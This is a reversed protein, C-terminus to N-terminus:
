SKAERKIARELTQDLAAKVKAYEEQSIRGQKHEVELQFLEEKLAEFLMGSRGVLPKTTVPSDASPFSGSTPVAVHMDDPFSAVVTKPRSRLYLTMAILM